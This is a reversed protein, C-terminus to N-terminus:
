LQNAPNHQYLFTFAVGALMEMVNTRVIIFTQLNVRVIGAEGGCKRADNVATLTALAFSAAGTFGFSFASM